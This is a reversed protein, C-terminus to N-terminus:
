CGPKPTSPKTLCTVPVPQLGVRTATVVVTTSGGTPDCSNVHWDSSGLLLQWLHHRRLYSGMGSTRIAEACMEVVRNTRVEVVAFVAAVAATIQQFRM